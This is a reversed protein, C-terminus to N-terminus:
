QAQWAIAFDKDGDDPLQRDGAAAPEDEIAVAVILQV